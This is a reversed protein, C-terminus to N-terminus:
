PGRINEVAMMTREIIVPIETFKISEKLFGAVAVENAANFAAPTTGGEDAARYALDLAPFRGPDPKEFTLATLESLDLRGFDSEVREPWFLAYTIPLRMDPQSLQAIISSDVFEVMSHIISQPHIVVKVKATPLSFLVTAEIVELGKNVLTASDITIKPGMKWIPHALAQQPTIQDFRDPPYDRFPGGSATLIVTRVEEPKGCALAQWVASHESDIPLIVGGTEKMLPGFLPGGAVLSEKNALALKRGARVTALSAKLGAAGVIANVVLDVDALAALQVLDKEGALVQVPEERLIDTLMARRSQDAVCVYQPQFQQHQEALLEVNSYAALAVVEFRGPHQKIVDLTSRGISGTSGLLAIRRPTM